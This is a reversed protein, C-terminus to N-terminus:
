FSSLVEWFMCVRQGRPKGTFLGHTREAESIDVPVRASLDELVFRCALVATAVVNEGGISAAM